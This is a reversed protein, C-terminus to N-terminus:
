FSVDVPSPIRVFQSHLSGELSFENQARQFEEISGIDIWKSKIQYACTMEGKELLKEFLMPMDYRTNEPIESYVRPSLVYIGANALSRVVPKEVISSIKEGDCHVVGYPIQVEYPVVGMTAAAGKENHFRLLDLFDLDTILDGNMVIAPQELKGRLFSLSGATGLLDSERFYKIKVGWKGGEGFADEIMEMKYHVCFLLHRLGRSALSEVTRELISKGGVKLLPKPCNETLPRLRMGNGGLMLVADLKAFDSM